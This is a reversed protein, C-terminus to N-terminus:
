AALRLTPPQEQDRLHSLLDVCADSDANYGIIDGVCVLSEVRLRDFEALAAELAERNGHIDGLVGYIAM